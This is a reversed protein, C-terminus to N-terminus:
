ALRHIHKTKPEKSTLWPAAHNFKILRPPPFLLPLQFILISALNEIGILTMKKLPKKWPFDVGGWGGQERGGREWGGRPLAPFFNSSDAFDTSRKRWGQIDSCFILCCRNDIVELRPILHVSWWQPAENSHINSQERLFFTLAFFFLISPPLTLSVAKERKM